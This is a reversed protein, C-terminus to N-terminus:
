FWLGCVLGRGIQKRMKNWGGEEKERVRTGEKGMGPVQKEGLVEGMEVEGLEGLDGLGRLSAIDTGRPCIWKKNNGMGMGEKMGEKMDGMKKGMGEMGKKMDEGMKGMNGMGGGGGGQKSGSDMAGHQGMSEMNSSSGKPMNSSGSSSSSEPMMKASKGATMGGQQSMKQQQSSDSSQPMKKKSSSTTSSSQPMSKEDDHMQQPPLPNTHPQSITLDLPNMPPSHSLRHSPTIPLRMIPRKPLIGPPSPRLSPSTSLSILSFPWDVYMLRRRLATFWTTDRKWLSIPTDPSRSARMDTIILTTSAWTRGACRSRETSRCRTILNTTNTISTTNKVTTIISIICPVLHTSLFFFLSCAIPPFFSSFPSGKMYSALTSPSAQVSSTMNVTTAPSQTRPTSTMAQPTPSNPIRPPSPRAIRPGHTSVTKRPTATLPRYHGPLKVIPLAEPAIAWSGSSASCHPVSSMPALTSWAWTATFLLSLDSCSILPQSTRSLWWLCGMPCWAISPPCCWSSLMSPIRALFSMLFVQPLGKATRTSPLIASIEM